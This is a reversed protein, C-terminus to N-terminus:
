DDKRMLRNDRAAPLNGGGREHVKPPAKRVLRAVMGRRQALAVAEERGVVPALRGRVLVHGTNSYQRLYGDHYGIPLTAIVSRRWTTFTHGYGLKTGAPVAKSFSIRTHMSMVPQVDIQQRPVILPRLGYGECM